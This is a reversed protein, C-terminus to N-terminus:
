LADKLHPAYRELASRRGDEDILRCGWQPTGPNLQQAPTPLHSALGADVLRSIVRNAITLHQSNLPNKFKDSVLGDESELVIRKLMSAERGSVRRLLLGADRALESGIQLSLSEAAVRLYAPRASDHVEFTLDNLYGLLEHTRKPSDLLAELREKAQEENEAAGFISLLEWLAREHEDKRFKALRGLIADGVAQPPGPFPSSMIKLALKQGPTRHDSDSM